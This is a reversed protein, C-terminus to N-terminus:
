RWSPQTPSLARLQDAPGGEFRDDAVVAARRQAVVEMPNGFSAAGVLGADRDSSPEHGEHVVASVVALDAAKLLPDGRSARARGVLASPFPMVGVGIAVDALQNLGQPDHGSRVMRESCRPCIGPLRAVVCCSVRTRFRAVGRSGSGFCRTLWARECVRSM